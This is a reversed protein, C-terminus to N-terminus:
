LSLWKRSFFIQEVDNKFTNVEFEQIKLQPYLDISVVFLRAAMSLVESANAKLVHPYSLNLELTLKRKRREYIVENKHISNDPPLAVVFFNIERIGTGYKSLDISELAKELPRTDLKDFTEDNVISRIIIGPKTATEVM